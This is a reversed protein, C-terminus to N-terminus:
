ENAPSPELKEIKTKFQSGKKKTEGIMARHRVRHEDNEHPHMSAGKGSPADSWEPGAAEAAEKSDFTQTGFEVHYMTVRTNPAVNAKQNGRPDGIFM